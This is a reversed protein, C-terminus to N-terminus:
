FAYSGMEMLNFFDGSLFSDLFSVVTAECAAIGEKKSREGSFDFCSGMESVPKFMDSVAESERMSHSVVLDEDM